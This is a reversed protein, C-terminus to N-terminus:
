RAVLKPAKRRRREALNTFLTSLVDGRIKSERSNRAVGLLKRPLRIAGNVAADDKQHHGTNHVFGWSRCLMPLSGAPKYHYQVTCWPGLLLKTPMTEAPSSRSRTAPVRAKRPGSAVCMEACESAPNQKVKRRGPGASCDFGYGQEISLRTQSMPSTRRSARSSTRRFSSGCPADTEDNM